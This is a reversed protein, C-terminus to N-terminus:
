VFSEDWLIWTEREEGDSKYVASVDPMVIM